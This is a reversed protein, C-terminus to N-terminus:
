VIVEVQVACCGCVTTGAISITRVQGGQVLQATNGVVKVQPNATARLITAGVFVSFTTLVRVKNRYRENQKEKM